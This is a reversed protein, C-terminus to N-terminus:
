TLLNRVEPKEILLVWSTRWIKSEFERPYEFKFSVTRQAGARLPTGGGGGHTVVGCSRVIKTKNLLRSSDKIHYSTFFQKYFYDQTLSISDVAKIWDARAQNLFVDDGRSYRPSKSAM